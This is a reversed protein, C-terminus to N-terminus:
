NTISIESAYEYKSMDSTIVREGVKIGSVIEIFDFNSLGTKVSRRVAKGKSLVFVEQMNSGKFAPGNPVRIVNNRTATVLFVDAKMNPRLLKNNKEELKTFNGISMITGFPDQLVTGMITYIHRLDFTKDVLMAGM